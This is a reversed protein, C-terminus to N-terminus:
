FNLPVALRLGIINREWIRKKSDESNGIDSFRYFLEINLNSTVKEKNKFLFIFGIDANWLPKVKDLFTATLNAHLGTNKQHNFYHYYNGYISAGYLRQQYEGTYVLSKSIVKRELNEGEGILQFDNIETKQLSNLNDTRRLLAGLNFYFSQNDFDSRYRSWQIKLENSVFNEDSIQDELSAATDIRQFSNNNIKFGFSFWSIDIGIVYDKEKELALKEKKIQLELIEKEKKPIRKKLQNLKVQKENILFAKIEKKSKLIEIEDFDIHEILTEVDRLLTKYQIPIRNKAKKLNGKYKKICTDLICNTDIITNIYSTLELKHHSSVSDRIKALYKKIEDKLVIFDYPKLLSDLVLNESNLKKLEAKAKIFEYTNDIENEKKKQKDEIARLKQLYAEKKPGHSILVTKSKTGRAMKRSYRSSILHYDAGISIGTNLKSNTFIPTIGDLSRGSVNVNLVNGNKMSFTSALTLSGESINFSAYKGPASIEGGTVLNQFEQNLTKFFLEREAISDKEKQGYVWGSNWFALLFFLMYKYKM